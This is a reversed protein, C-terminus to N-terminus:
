ETKLGIPPAPPTQDGPTYEKVKSLESEGIANYTTVAFYYTTNPTLSISDLSYSLVDKGVTAILTMSEKNLANKDDGYYIKFGDINGSAEWKITAALSTSGAIFILTILLMLISCSKNKRM